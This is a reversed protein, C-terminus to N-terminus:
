EKLGRLHYYRNHLLLHADEIEEYLYLFLAIILCAYRRASFKLRNRPLHEGYTNLYWSFRKMVFSGKQFAAKLTILDVRRDMSLPLGLLDLYTIYSLLLKLVTVSSPFVLCKILTDALWDQRGQLQVWHFLLGFILLTIIFPLCFKLLSITEKFSYRYFHWVLAAALVATQVPAHSYFPGFVFLAFFLLAALSLSTLKFLAM